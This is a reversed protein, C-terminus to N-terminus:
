LQSPSRMLKAEQVTLTSSVCRRTELLSYVSDTVAESALRISKCHLLGDEEQLYLLGRDPQADVFNTEGRRESILGTVERFAAVYRRNSRGARLTVLPPMDTRTTRLTLLGRQLSGAGKVKRASFAPFYIARLTM